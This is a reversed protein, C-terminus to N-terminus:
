RDRTTLLAIISPRADLMDDRDVDNVDRVGVAWQRTGAIPCTAEGSFAMM